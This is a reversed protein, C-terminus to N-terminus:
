NTLPSPTYLIIPLSINTYGLPSPHDIHTVAVAISSFPFVVVFYSQLDSKFHLFYDNLNEYRLQMKKHFREYSSIREVNNGFKRKRRKERERIANVDIRVKKSLFDIYAIIIVSGM